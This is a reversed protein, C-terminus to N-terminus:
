EYRYGFSKKDIDGLSGIFEEILEKDRERSYQSLVDKMAKETASKLIQRIIEHRLQQTEFLITQEASHLLSQATRRAQAIVEQKEKEAMDIYEAKIIRSYEDIRGLKGEIEQLRKIAEDRLNISEEMQHKMTEYRNKFFDRVIRRLFYGLAGFFLIFNIIFWGVPPSETDAKFWNISVDQHGGHSAFLQIPIILFFVLFLINM